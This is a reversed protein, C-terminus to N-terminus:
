WNFWGKKKKYPALMDQAEQNGPNLQTTTVLWKVMYDTDQNVASIRARLWALDANKEQRDQALSCAGLAEAYQGNAYFREGAEVLVAIARAELTPDALAKAAARLAGPREDQDLNLEAYDAWWATHDPHAQLGKELAAMAGRVNGAAAELSAIVGWVDPPCGENESWEHAEDLALDVENMAEYVGLRQIEGAVPNSGWRTEATALKLALVFRGSEALAESAVLYNGDPHLSALREHLERDEAATLGCMTCRLYSPDPAQGPEPSPGTARLDGGCNVCRDHYPFRLSVSYKETRHVTGCSACFYVDAHQDDVLRNTWQLDMVSCCQSDAM